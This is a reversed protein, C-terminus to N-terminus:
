SLDDDQLLDELGLGELCESDDAAWELLSSLEEPNIELEPLSGEEEL